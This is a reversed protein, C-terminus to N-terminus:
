HWRLGAQAKDAASLCTHGFISLCMALTPSPAAAQHRMGSKFKAQVSRQKQSVDRTQLQQLAWIRLRGGWTQAKWAQSCALLAAADKATPVLVVHLKHGAPCGSGIVCRGVRLFQQCSNLGIEAQLRAM